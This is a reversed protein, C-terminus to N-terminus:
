FGFKHNLRCRFGYPDQAVWDGASYRIKKRGDMSLSNFHEATEARCATESFFTDNFLIDGKETFVEGEWMELSCGALGFVVAIVSLLGGKPTNM